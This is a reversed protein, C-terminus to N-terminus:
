STIPMCTYTRHPHRTNAVALTSNNYEESKGEENYKM